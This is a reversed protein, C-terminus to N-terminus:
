VRTPHFISYSQYLWFLAGVLWLFCKKMNFVEKENLARKIKVFELFINVVRESDTLIFRKSVMFKLFFKQIFFAASFHRSIQM